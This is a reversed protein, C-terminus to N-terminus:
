DRRQKAAEKRAARFQESTQDLQFHKKVQL